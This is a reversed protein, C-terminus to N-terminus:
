EVVEFIYESNSTTVILTDEIHLINTVKSSEIYGFESTPVAILTKNIEVRNLEMPEGVFYQIRANANTTSKLIVKM